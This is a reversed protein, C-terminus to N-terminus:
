PTAPKQGQTRKKFDAFSETPGGGTPATAGGAPVAAPAAAAAGLNPLERNQGEMQPVKKWLRALNENFKVLQSMGYKSDGATAPITNWLAQAQPESVRSGGTTQKPLALAAERLSFVDQVYQKSADSMLSVAFRTKYDDPHGALATQILTKQYPNQDLAAVSKQLNVVKAGMDNLAAHNQEGDKWASPNAKGIHAGGAEQAESKPGLHENGQKDFWQVMEEGAKQKALEQTLSETKSVGLDKLKSGFTPSNPQMDIVYDHPKGDPGVISKTEVKQQPTGKYVVDSKINGDKDRTLAVINGTVKDEQYKPKGSTVDAIDKVGQPTTPDDLGKLAGNRDRWGTINGEPDKELQIQERHEIESEINKRQLAQTGRTSEETALKSQAEALRPIERGLQAVEAQRNLATGPITGMIGPAVINGAINGITGLTHLIKGKTGPMRSIESGLPHQQDYVDQARKQQAYGLPDKGPDATIQPRGAFYEARGAAESEKKTPPTLKIPPEAGRPLGGGAAPAATTLEPLAREAPTIAPPTAGPVAPAAVPATMPAVGTEAAPVMPGALRAAPGVAPPRMATVPEMVPAIRPRAAALTPAASLDTRAPPIMPRVGATVDMPRIPAATPAAGSESPVTAAAAIDPPIMPAVRTAPLTPQGTAGIMLRKDREATPSVPIRPQGTAAIMLERDRDGIDGLTPPPPQAPMHGQAILHDRMAQEDQPANLLDELSLAM